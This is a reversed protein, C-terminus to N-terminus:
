SGMRLGRIREAIKAKELPDIEEKIKKQLRVVEQNVNYEKVVKFLLDVEKEDVTDGLDQGIVETLLQTLNEKDGLYTYFDAINM